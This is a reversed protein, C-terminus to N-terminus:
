DLGAMPQSASEVRVSVIDIDHYQQHRISTAYHRLLRLPTEDGFNPAKESLMALQDEINTEDTTAIFELDAVDGKSGAIVLLRRGSGASEETGRMLIHATEEGVARLRREMEKGLRKRAVFKVM